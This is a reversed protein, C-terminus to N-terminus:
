LLWKLSTPQPRRVVGPVGNALDDAAAESCPTGVIGLLVIEGATVTVQVDDRGSRRVGSLTRARRQRIREDDLPVSAARM